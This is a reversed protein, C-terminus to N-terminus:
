PLSPSQQQQAPRPPAPGGPYFNLQRRPQGPSRSTHSLGRLRPRLVEVTGILGSDSACDDSDRGPHGAAERGPDTLGGWWLVWQWLAAQEEAVSIGGDGVEESISGGM